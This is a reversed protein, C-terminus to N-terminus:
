WRRARRWLDHLARTPAKFFSGRAGTAPNLRKMPDWLKLPASRKARREEEPLSDDLRSPDV